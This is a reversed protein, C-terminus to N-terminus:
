AISIGGNKLLCTTDENLTLKKVNNYVGNYIGDDSSIVINSDVIDVSRCVPAHIDQIRSLQLHESSFVIMSNLRQPLNCFQLHVLCRCFRRCSCCTVLYRKSFYHNGTIWM